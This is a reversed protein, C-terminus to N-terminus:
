ENDEVVAKKSPKDYVPKAKENMILAQIYAKEFESKAEVIDGIDYKKVHLGDLAVHISEIIEAKM